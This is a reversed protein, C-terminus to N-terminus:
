RRLTATASSTGLSCAVSYTGPAALQFTVRTYPAGDFALPEQRLLTVVGSSATWDCTAGYIPGEDTAARLDLEAAAGSGRPTVIVRSVEARAVVRVDLRAATAGVSAELWGSGPAGVFAFDDGPAPGCALEVPAPALPGRMALGIAGSGHLLRGSADFADVHLPQLSGELVRLAPQAGYRFRLSAPAAVQVGVSDLLEGHTGILSLEVRGPAHGTVVVDGRDVEFTAVEPRSSQASALSGDILRVHIRAQALTTVAHDDLNCGCDQYYFAAHNRSGTTEDPLRCGTSLVLALVLSRIRM